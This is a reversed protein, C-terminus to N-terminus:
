IMNQMCKHILLLIETHTHTAHPRVAAWMSQAHHYDAIELSGIWRENVNTIVQLLEWAPLEWEGMIKLSHLVRAEGSRCHLWQATTTTTLCHQVQSSLRTLVRSKLSCISTKESEGSVTFARSAEQGRCIPNPSVSLHMWGADQTWTQM